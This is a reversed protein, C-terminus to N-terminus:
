KFFFLLNPGQSLGGKGWHTGPLSVLFAFPISKLLRNVFYFINLLPLNSGSGWIGVVM